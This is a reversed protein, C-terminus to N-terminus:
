HDSVFFRNRTNTRKKRQLTHMCAHALSFPGVHCLSFLFSLNMGAMNKKSGFVYMTKFGVLWSMLGLYGKREKSNKGHDRRADRALGGYCGGGGGAPM